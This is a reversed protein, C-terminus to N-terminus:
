ACARILKEAKRTFRGHRDVYDILDLFARYSYHRELSNIACTCAARTGGGKICGKVFAKKVSSPYRYGAPASSAAPALATMALVALLATTVLIGTVRRM